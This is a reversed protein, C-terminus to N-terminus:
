WQTAVIDLYSLGSSSEIYWGQTNGYQLTKISAGTPKHFGLLARRASPSAM